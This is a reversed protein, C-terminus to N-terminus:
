RSIAVLGKRVIETTGTGTANPARLVVTYPYLGNAVPTGFSDRLDWVARPRPQTAKSLETRLVRVVKGSLTHIRISAQIRSDVTGNTDPEGALKFYFATTGGSRVPNPSNFVEYLSVESEQAIELQVRTRALNGMLDRASVDFSYTSGASMTASDIVFQASARRFDADQRLDPHWPDRVGPVAFVVGEDPGSESSIGSSDFLDVSICFPVPIKAIKGYAVGGSWSSDCPRIAIQPGDSEITGTSDTGFLVRPALVAGGDRRTAPNWAYVRLVASDGFAIRAPIQLTAALSDGVINSQLALMQSPSPRYIQFDQADSAKDATDQDPQLELRVQFRSAKDTKGRLQLRSLAAITDKISDLDVRIGGPVLVMAPDGLLNYADQNSYSLVLGGGSGDKSGVLAEGITTPALTDVVRSWFEASIRQNGDPYTPRTGAIGSVAGKGSAVVMAETLGRAGPVDNRGVTCSGAFFLYPTKSNVLTRDIVSVDMLNEDALISLGGHGLYTFGIAGRNLLNQLNRAAEPKQRVGNVPYDVLYLKELRLWPRLAFMAGAVGEMQNTHNGIGDPKVGQWVDDASLVITNRWPGFEARAPDEFVKLKELWAKAESVTRAPVRGIAVDMTHSAGVATPDGSALYGFHDDTSMAGDEWHPVLVASAKGMALRPDVHGAGLLLVHSVGWRKHAWRIADRIGNPDMQGGSWLQYVDETRAIAVKMKRVQFDAERHAAYDEAVELMSGPAVVLVDATRDAAFDKVVHSQTASTWEAVTVPSGAPADPFVAYWTDAIRASDRLRGSEISCLRVAVGEELVWCRGAGSAVKIDLAGVAPAPFLVSGSKSLDRRYALNLGAIALRSGAFFFDFAKTSADLGTGSWVRDSPDSFSWRVSSGAIGFSDIRDSGDLYWGTNTIEPRVWASDGMRGPFALGDLPLTVTGEAEAGIWYWDKGLDSETQLPVSGIVIDKLKDPTGVWMPQLVSELVAPASGKSGAALEPSGAPADLRVLFERERSYPNISYRWSPATGELPRWLNPGRGWFWIEDDQDLLGDGNRDLRQIPILRLGPAVLTDPMASPATGSIGSYVAINSFAWGGTIKSLQSGKLRVVGDEESSFPNSDGVRVSVMIGGPQIGGARGRRSAFASAVRIGRPNDVIGKWVSGRPLTASGEWTLRLRVKERLRVGGPAPVALPLDMSLLRFGDMKSERWGDRDRPAAEIPKATTRDWGPVRKWRGGSVTTGSDLLLELKWAADSPLAIRGTLRGALLDGPVDSSPVEPCAYSGAGDPLAVVRCDKASWEIEWRGPEDVLVRFPASFTATAVMLVTLIFPRM